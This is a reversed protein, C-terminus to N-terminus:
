DSDTDTRAHLALNHHLDTGRRTDAGFRLQRDSPDSCIVPNPGLRAEGKRRSKPRLPCARSLRSRHGGNAVKKILAEVKDATVKAARALKDAANRNAIADALERRLAHDQSFDKAVLARSALREATTGTTDETPISMNM